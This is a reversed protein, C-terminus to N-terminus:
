CAKDILVRIWCYVSQKILYTEIKWINLLNIGSLDNPNIFYNNQENFLSFSTKQNCVASSVAGFLSMSYIHNFNIFLYINYNNNSYIKVLLSIFTM